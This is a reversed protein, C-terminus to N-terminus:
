LKKALRNNVPILIIYVILAYMFPLMAVAFNAGFAAIDDLSVAVIIMSFVSVFVGAPVVSKQIIRLVELRGDAKSTFVCAACILVLFLISPIDIFYNIYYLKNGTSITFLFLIALVGLAIGILTSLLSKKSYNEKDSLLRMINEEAKSSYDDPPLKEGSLLENVSIDLAKCLPVLLLTDPMSNGNEWKSITKDSVGIQEALDKQTMNKEKRLEQMFKGITKQEKMEVEM